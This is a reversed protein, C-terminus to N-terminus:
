DAEPSEHQQRRAGEDLNARKVMSNLFEIGGDRYSQLADAVSIDESPSIGRPGQTATIRNAWASALSRRRVARRQEEFYSREETKDNQGSEVINAQSEDSETAQGRSCGDDSFTVPGGVPDAVGPVSTSAVTRRQAGWPVQMPEDGQAENDEEPMLSDNKRGDARAKGNDVNPKGTPEIGSSRGSMRPRQDRPEGPSPTRPQALVRSGRPTTLVSRAGLLAEAGAAREAAAFAQAGEGGGIRDKLFQVYDDAYRLWFLIWEALHREYQDEPLKAIEVFNLENEEQFKKAALDLVKCQEGVLYNMDNNLQKHWAGLDYQHRWHGAVRSTFPQTRDVRELFRGWPEILTDFGYACCTVEVAYFEGSRLLIQWAATRSSSLSTAPQPTGDVHPDTVDM